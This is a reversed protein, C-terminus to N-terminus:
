VFLCELNQRSEEFGNGCVRKKKVRCRVIRVKLLSSLGQCLRSKIFNHPCSLIGTVLVKEKRWLKGVMECVIEFTKDVNSINRAFAKLDSFALM